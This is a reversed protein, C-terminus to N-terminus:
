WYSMRSRGTEYYEFLSDVFEAYLEQPSASPLQGSDASLAWLYLRPNFTLQETM